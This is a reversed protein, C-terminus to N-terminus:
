AAERQRGAAVCDDHASAVEVAQGRTAELIGVLAIADPDDRRAIREALAAGATILDALRGSADDFRIHPDM